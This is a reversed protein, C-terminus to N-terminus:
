VDQHSSHSPKSQALYIRRLTEVIQNFENSKDFFYNAGSEMCRKRYQAYPFNTLMIVTPQPLTHDQRIARLVDVGSHMHPVTSPMQIDLIVVEPKLDRIGQIAEGLEGAQGVIGVGDIGALMGALRERMDVSDDAIFVRVPASSDVHQSSSMCIPGLRGADM